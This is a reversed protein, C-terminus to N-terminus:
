SSKRAFVFLNDSQGSAELYGHWLQDAVHDIGPLPTNGMPRREKMWLLANSLGYTQIYRESEILLGSAKVCHRLSLRDFYWRHAKRYFFSPFEEPLLKMLIDDRNPTAIILSGGPKLLAAIKNLFERPNLVHEIVQFTVAVDIGGPHAKLADEAYSFVDYGRLRLSNHYRQTPEVAILKEALGSVHSLFSGAGCGIDAIVKGRLNLPWFASLNYIQFPDAHSFFDKVELGQEMAIRYSDSEYASAAINVAEELRDVGCGDCRAVKGGETQTGFSGTRIGGEYVISNWGNAGCIECPKFM